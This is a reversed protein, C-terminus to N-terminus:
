TFFYKSPAIGFLEPTQPEKGQFSVQNRMKDIPIAAPDEQQSVWWKATLTLPAANLACAASSAVGVSKPDPWMCILGSNRGRARVTPDSDWLEALDHLALLDNAMSSDTAM